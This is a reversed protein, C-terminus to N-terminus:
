IEQLSTHFNNLAGFDKLSLESIRAVPAPLTPSPLSRPPTAFRTRVRKTLAPCPPTWPRLILEFENQQGGLGVGAFLARVRKAAGGGEGAFRTRVRKALIRSIKALNTLFDILDRFDKLDGKSKSPVGESRSFGESGRRGGHNEPGPVGSLSPNTMRRRTGTQLGCM